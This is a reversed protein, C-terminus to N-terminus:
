IASIFLNNKNALRLAKDQDLFINQNKKLYIGRLNSKICLMVTKYGITPLDYNLNQTKKPLKILVGSHKKKSQKLKTVRKLMEDTGEASEIALIYGSDLVIGQANDFKSLVDLIKKGKTFDKTDSFNPKSKTITKNVLLHKCYKHSEIVKINNKKLIQRAFNLISGDGKKFASILKPLLSIAKLDLKLKSLNPRKVYGAFIVEKINNKKLVNLIKGFQGLNIKVSNRIKKETLNLIIYKKGQKNLSLVIEKPLSGTGAFIGIM